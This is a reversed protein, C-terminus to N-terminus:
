NKKYFFYIQDTLFQNKGSEKETILSIKCMNKKKILLKQVDDDSFVAYSENNLKTIPCVLDCTENDYFRIYKANDSNHLLLKHTIGDFNVAKLLKLEGKNTTAIKENLAIIKQPNLFVFTNLTIQKGQSVLYQGNFNGRCYITYISDKLANKPTLIERNEINFDNLQLLSILKHKVPVKFSIEQGKKNKFVLEAQYGSFFSKIPLDMSIKLFPNENLLNGEINKILVKESNEFNQNKYNSFKIPPAIVFTNAKKLDFLGKQVLKQMRERSDIEINFNDNTNTYNEIINANYNVLNSLTQQHAYMISKIWIRHNLLQIGLFLLLFTVKTQVKSFIRMQFFIYKIFLVYLIAFIMVSNLVYAERQVFSEGFEKRKIVIMAYTGFFFLLMSFLGLDKQYIKKVFVFYATLLMALVGMVINLNPLLTGFMGGVYAPFVKLFFPIINLSLHTKGLEYNTFYAALLVSSFVIWLALEKYRKQFFLCLAGIPIILMGNGNSFVGFFLFLLALGFNKFKSLSYFTLMSFFIAPFHTLAGMAIFHLESFSYVLMIFSVPIFYWFSYEKFKGSKYLILMSAMYFCFGLLRYTTLDIKGFIFIYVLNIIRLTAIRHENHQAFLIHFRESFTKAEFFNNNFDFFAEYDDKIPFNVFHFSVNYICIGLFLVFIIYPSLNKLITLKTKVM